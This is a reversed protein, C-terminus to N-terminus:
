LWLPLMKRGRDGGGGSGGGDRETKPQRLHYSDRGNMRDVRADEVKENGESGGGEM